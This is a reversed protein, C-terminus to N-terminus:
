GFERRASMVRVAKIDWKAGKKYSTHTHAYQTFLPCSQTFPQPAENLSLSIHVCVCVAVYVYMCCYMCGHGRGGLHM